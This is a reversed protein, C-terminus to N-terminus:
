VFAFVLRVRNAGFQAAVADMAGFLAHLSRVVPHELHDRPLWPREGGIEAATLWTVESADVFAEFLKLTSDAAREPYGRFRSGGAAEHMKRFVEAATRTALNLDDDFSWMSVDHTFPPLDASTNDDIELVVKPTPPM